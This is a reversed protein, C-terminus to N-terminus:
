HLTNGHHHLLVGLRPILASYLCKFEQQTHTHKHILKLTSCFTVFYHLSVSVSIYVSLYLFFLATIESTCIEAINHYIIIKIKHKQADYYLTLYFM